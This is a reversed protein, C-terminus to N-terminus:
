NMLRRWTGMSCPGHLTHPLSMFVNRLRSGFAGDTGRRLFCLPTLGNPAAFMDHWALARAATARRFACLAFSPIVAGM